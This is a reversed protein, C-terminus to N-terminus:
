LSAIGRSQALGAFSEIEVKSPSPIAAVADVGFELALLRGQKGGHRAALQGGGGTLQWISSLLLLGTCAANRTKTCSPKMWQMGAGRGEKKM